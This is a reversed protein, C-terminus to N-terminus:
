HERDASSDLAQSYAAARRSRTMGDPSKGSSLALRGGPLVLLETAAEGLSLRSFAGPLDGPTRASPVGLSSRRREQARRRAKNLSDRWLAYEEINPTGICLVDRDPAEQRQHNITITYLKQAPASVVPPCLIRAVM